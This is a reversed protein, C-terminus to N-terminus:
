TVEANLDRTKRGDAGPKDLLMKGNLTEIRISGNEGIFTQHGVSRYQWLFATGQIQRRSGEQPPYMRGDSEWLSPNFPVGSSEDEVGNLVNGLLVLAEEASTAKPAAELREIFIRIRQKKSRV